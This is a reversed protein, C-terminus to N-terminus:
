TTKFKIQFIKLSGQAALKLTLTDARRPALKCSSSPGPQPELMCVDYTGEVAPTSYCGLHFTSKFKTQFVQFQSCAKGDSIQLAPAPNDRAHRWSRKTDAATARQNAKEDETENEIRARYRQRDRNRTSRYTLKQKKKPPM